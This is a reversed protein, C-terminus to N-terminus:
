YDKGEFLKKIQQSDYLNKNENYKILYKYNKSELKKARTIEETITVELDFYKINEHPVAMIKSNINIIKSNKDNEDIAGSNSYSTPMELIEIIKDNIVAYISLSTGGYGQHMDGTESVWALENTNGLKYTVADCPVGYPGCGISDSKAILALNENLLEYKIFRLNGVAVHSEDLENESDLPYGSEVVYLFIKNNEINKVVSSINVCYNDVLNMYCAHKSNFDKYNLHDEIKKIFEKTSQEPIYKLESLNIPISVKNTESNKTCGTLQFVIFFVCFCYNIINSIYKIIESIQIPRRSNQHNFSKM